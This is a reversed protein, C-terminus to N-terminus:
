TMHLAFIKAIAADLYDGDLAARPVFAVSHDPHRFRGTGELAPFAADIQADEAVDCAARYPHLRSALKIVTRCNETSLHICSPVKM